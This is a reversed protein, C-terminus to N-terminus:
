RPLVASGRGAPGTPPGTCVGGKSACMHHAKRFAALFDGDEPQLIMLTNDTGKYRLNLYAEYKIHKDQVGDEKLANVVKERLSTIRDNIEIATSENYPGSAPEQLEQAVDALM